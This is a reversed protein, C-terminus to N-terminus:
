FWRKGVGTKKRPEVESGNERVEEVFLMLPSLIPTAALVDCTTVAMGGEEPHPRRISM